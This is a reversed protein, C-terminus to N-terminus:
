WWSTYFVNQGNAIADRAAAIFILDDDKDEPQSTGWFFGTRTELADGTVDAELRELDELDIRVCVVNFNPDTGGKEYYLDEMWGHLNPHKRWQMLLEPRDDPSFGLEETNNFTEPVRHTTAFAFMDLGM